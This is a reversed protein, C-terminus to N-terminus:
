FFKKAVSEHGLLSEGGDVFISQGTIFSSKKSCLFEIVNSIDKSHGIRNLPTIKKIMNITKKEKRFYDLNEKKIITSPLVSNVRIGKKGYKVALYKVMISMAGRVYHYSGNQESLIYKSANSGIIVVSADKKFKISLLDLIKEVELVMIKYEEIPNFDRYRHTFIVYNIKSKIFNLLLRNDDKGIEFCFNTKSQAVTRSILFVNDGRKKFDKYVQSGIGKNGGFLITNNAM